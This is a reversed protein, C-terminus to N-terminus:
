NKLEGTVCLSGDEDGLEALGEVLETLSKGDGTM